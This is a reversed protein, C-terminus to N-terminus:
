SENLIHFLRFSFRLAMGKRGILLVKHDLNLSQDVSSGVVRQPIRVVPLSVYLHYSAYNPQKLRRTTSKDDQM